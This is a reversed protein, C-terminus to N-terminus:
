DAGSEYCRCGVPIDAWLREPCGAAWGEHREREHNSEGAVYRACGVVGGAERLCEQPYRLGLECSQAAHAFHLCPACPV